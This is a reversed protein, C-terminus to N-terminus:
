KSNFQTTVSYLIKTFDKMIAENNIKRLIFERNKVGIENIKELDLSLFYDLAEVIELFDGPKVLKVGDMNRDVIEPMGGINSAIVLKGYLMSEILTYPLPEPCLSPIVVTSIKRMLNEISKRDLKPMLNVLIGKSMNLKKPKESTNALYVECNAKLMKLSRILTHFGKVVSKGGFYGVGKRETKVLPINPLPNHIVYSKDRLKPIKSLVLDRQAKSVFILADAMRGLKNYYKGFLEEAYSSIIASLVSRKKEFREHIMFSGLSSSAVSQKVFDYMLSLSCALSYNHLHLVVPKGYTKALLIASYWGGPIYIVDSRKILETILDGMLIGINALTYYRTGFLFKNSFRYVRIREDIIEFSKENPFKSTIVYLDFGREALLKAYLWTALEAGGGHPYFLESFIAIKM